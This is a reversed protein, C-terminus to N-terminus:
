LNKSKTALQGCAASIDDGKKYRQVIEIDTGKFYSLFKRVSEDSPKIFKHSTTETDLLTQNVRNYPIINLNFNLQKSLDIIANADENNMNVGEIM